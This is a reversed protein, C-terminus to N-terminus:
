HEKVLFLAGARKASLGVEEGESSLSTIQCNEGLMLNEKWVPEKCKTYLYMTNNGRNLFLRSGIGEGTVM